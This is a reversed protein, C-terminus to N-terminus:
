REPLVNRTQIFNDIRMKMFFDQVTASPASKKSTKADTEKIDNVEECQILKTKCPNAKLANISSVTVVNNLIDEIIDHVDAELLDDFIIHVDDSDDDLAPDFNVITSDKVTRVKSTSAMEDDRKQKEPTQHDGEKVKEELDSSRRHTLREKLRTKFLKEAQYKKEVSALQWRQSSESSELMALKENLHKLDKATQELKLENVLLKSTLADNNHQKDNIQQQQTSIKIISHKRDEININMEVERSAVLSKLRSNERELIDLKGDSLSM